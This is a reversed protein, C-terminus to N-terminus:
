RHSFIETITRRREKRAASYSVTTALSRRVADVPSGEGRSNELSARPRSSITRSRTERESESGSQSSIPAVARSSVDAFASSLSVKRSKAGREHQQQIGSLTTSVSSTTPRSFTVGNTRTSSNSESRLLPFPAVGSDPSMTVTATTLATTPNSPKIAPTFPTSEPRITINSSASIKRRSLKDAADQSILSESPLTPLSPPVAVPPLSRREPFSIHSTRSVPTPSPEYDVVYRDEASFSTSIPEPRDRPAYLRRAASSSGSIPAAQRVTAPTGDNADNVSRGESSSTGTSSRLNTSNMSSPPRSRTTGNRELSSLGSLRITERGPEWSRRAERSRRGDADRASTPSIDPTMRRTVEEDLSHTRFHQNGSTVDRLIKGVGLLFGTMNRVIEDSVRLNERHDAGVERWLEPLDVSNKSDALEADIQAELAKNTGDKLMANLKDLAHVLHQSSQFVEPITTTTTQGMPPLRSLHSEFVSLAELMLRRHDSSSERMGSQATASRVTSFPSSRDLSSMRRIDELHRDPLNYTSRYSRLAPPATRPPPDDHHLAAMSTGPRPAIGSTPRPRFGSNLPTKPNLPPGIGESVRSNGEDISSDFSSDLESALASSAGTSRTRRQPVPAHLQGNSSTFVDEDKRKTLGAARLGEGILSRGGVTGLLGESSGSRHGQRRGPNDFSEDPLERSPSSLDESWRMQHHKRTLERERVTSYRSQGLRRPSGPPDSTSIRNKRPSPSARGLEARSALRHPTAPEVNPPKEDSIKRDRFERPLPQRGKKGATPSRRSSAVAALAAATVDEDDSRGYTDDASLAMSVRKSRPTRSPGPEARDKERATRMKGPSAPASIRRQRVSAADQLESYSTPPPPTTRGDSSTSYQSHHYSERETESGSLQTERRRGNSAPAVVSPPRSQSSSLRSSSTASSSSSGATPPSLPSRSHNSPVPSGLRSISSLKDLVMRNRQTLSKVRQLAAQNDPTGKSSSRRRDDSLRATHDEDNENEDADDEDEIVSSRKKSYGHSKDGVGGSMSSNSKSSPTRHRLSGANTSGEGVSGSGTSNTAPPSPLGSANSSTSPSPPEPLDPLAPPTSGASGIFIASLPRSKSAQVPRPTM